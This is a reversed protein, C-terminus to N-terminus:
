QTVFSRVHGALREFEADNSYFAHGGVYEYLVIRDRPYGPNAALLRAPGTTTLTDYIGTAIMLRFSDSAEFARGLEGPYDFDAFISRRAGRPTKSGDLTSWGEYDWYQGIDPALSRYEEVPLTVALFNRLHNRFAIPVGRTPSAPGEPDDVAATYRADGQGIVRSKGKLLELGFTHKDIILGNDLYYAASIGTLEQLRNAIAKREAETLSNGKALALLYESMAFDYTEDIVDAVPLEQRSARGHFWAIAAIQPMNVAFGILNNKRQTTEVLNVGQSLLIAGDLPTASEALLGAVLAARISGYSSGMVYKPSAERHRRKLWEQIFQAVSEADGTASFFYARDGHPLIRSFGTEVPDVFVLDASDLVTYPNDVTEYPPGVPATVDLPMALRRPGFGAIHLTQSAAGPGGNWIFIVPRSAPNPADERVYSTAFVSGTKRGDEDALVIEEFAASYDVETGNFAGRHTTVFSDGSFNRATAYERCAQDPTSATRVWKYGNFAEGDESTFVAPRREFCPGFADPAPIITRGEFIINTFEETAKPGLRASILDTWADHDFVFDEDVERSTFIERMFLHLNEAGGSAARLQSDLNAFYLAGRQYPTRRARENSFGAEAIQESTWNRAPNTYYAKALDNIAEGYEDATRYGALLTLLSTYYTTLGESFWSIIGITGEIGGVWQHIMEHMFTARPGVGGPEEEGARGRSLMFSNDLATGASRRGPSDLMRMFVRYRPAPDLYEFFDGLFLYAEGAWQMESAADFPFEGLWAASFGNADGSAPFRQVPGAMFWGQRLAEPPGNLDFAGDGFTSIAASGEPLGSLDWQVRSILSTVNEPLVLFGSGAGAIGGASARIGFPPARPADDPETESRYSMTVPFVVDRKARWHRYYPFGGPASPDDDVALPVDGNRDSLKLDTVRDAIGEVAAYVIPASISLLGSDPGLSGHIVSRVDIATVRGGDLVPLLTIEFRDGTAEKDPSTEGIAIRCPAAALVLAALLPAGAGAWRYRM